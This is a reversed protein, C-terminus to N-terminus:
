PCSTGPDLDHYPRCKERRLFIWVEGPAWGGEYETPILTIPNKGQPLPAPSHLQVSVNM